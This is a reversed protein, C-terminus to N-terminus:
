LAYIWVASAPMSQSVNQYLIHLYFSFLHLTYIVGLILLGMKFFNSEM